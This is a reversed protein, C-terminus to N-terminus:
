SALQVLEITFGDPDRLYCARVAGAVGGTFAVPDSVFTVGASRLKACDADISDTELALHASGPDCTRVTLPTGKPSRYEILELHHNSPGLPAGPIKLFAIRLDANRFGVVTDIEVGQRERAGTVEFGLLDRYFAVSRDLDAVTWSTHFVSKLM